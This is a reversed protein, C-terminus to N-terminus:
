TNAPHASRARTSHCLRTRDFAVLAVRKSGVRRWYESTGFVPATCNAFGGPKVPLDKTSLGQTAKTQGPGVVVTTRILTYRIEGSRQYTHPTRLFGEIPANANANTSAVLPGAPASSSDGGDGCGTLLVVLSLVAARMTAM